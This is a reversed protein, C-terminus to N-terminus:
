PTVGDDGNGGDGYTDIMLDVRLEGLSALLAAPIAISEQPSLPSWGIRLQFKAKALLDQLQGRYSALYEALEALLENLLAGEGQGKFSVSAIHPNRPSRVSGPLMRAIEISSLDTSYASLGLWAWGDGV